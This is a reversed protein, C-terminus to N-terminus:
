EGANEAVAAAHIALPGRTPPAFSARQTRRTFDCYAFGL